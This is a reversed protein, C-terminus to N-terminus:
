RAASSVEKMNGHESKVSGQEGTGPPRINGRINHLLLPLVQCIRREFASACDAPSAYGYEGIWNRGCVLAYKCSLCGICKEESLSTSDGRFDTRIREAASDIGQIEPGSSEYSVRKTAVDFILKATRLQFFPTYNVSRPTTIFRFLTGLVGENEVSIYPLRTGNSSRVEPQQTGNLAGSHLWVMFSPYKLKVLRLVEVLAKLQDESMGDLNCKMGVHVQQEFYGVISKSLSVADTPMSSSDAQLYIFGFNQSQVWPRLAIMGSATVIPVIAYDRRASAALVQDVITPDIESVAVDLVVSVRPGRNGAGDWVAFVDEVSPSDPPPASEEEPLPGFRFVIDCGRKLGKATIDLAMRAQQLELEASEETLYGRKSLTELETESLSSIDSPDESELVSALDAAVIDVAGKLTQFILCHASQPVQVLGLHISTHM